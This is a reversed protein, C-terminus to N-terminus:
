LPTPRYAGFVIPTRVTFGLEAYLRVAGTNADAAHLFPVEDRARIGAVVAAILRSALGAGRYAPDTCVASIETHGAPRMREGAMAVLQGGRRIGLYTGLEPTRRGFPGPRTLAALDLMEPLDAATLVVAEPDAAGRVGAGVLQVGPTGGARTWGPAATLGPAALLPQYGSTALAALDHWAAPDAPDDVAAFPSVDPRYRASRGHREALGAQTGTLASWAPNDLVHM